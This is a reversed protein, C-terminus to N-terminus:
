LSKKVIEGIKNETHQPSNTLKAEAIRNIQVNDFIQQVKEQTGSYYATTYSMTVPVYFPADFNNDFHIILEIEGNTEANEVVEGNEYNGYAQLIFQNNSYKEFFADSNVSYFVSALALPNVIYDKFQENIKKCLDHATKLDKIMNLEHRKNTMWAEKNSGPKLTEDSIQELGNHTHVLFELSDTIDILM